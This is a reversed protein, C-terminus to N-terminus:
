CVIFGTWGTLHFCLNLQAILISLSYHREEQCHITISLRQPPEGVMEVQTNMDKQTYSPSTVQSYDAFYLWPSLIDNM